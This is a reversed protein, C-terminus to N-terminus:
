SAELGASVRTPRGGGTSQGREEPRWLPERGEARFADVAILYRRVEEILSAPEVQTAVQAAM